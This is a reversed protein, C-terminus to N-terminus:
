YRPLTHAVSLPESFSTFLLTFKLAPPRHLVSLLRLLRHSLLVGILILYLILLVMTFGDIVYPRFLFCIGWFSSLVSILINLHALPLVFFPWIFMSSMQLSTLMSGIIVNRLCFRSRNYPWTNLFSHSSVGLFIIVICTYPYPWTNLFSHSSVGLFIIVICTCPYPWTNLFSHSSVVLFIIVTCTYPYPWTNLFSHSSVGLLHYSHLHISIAM